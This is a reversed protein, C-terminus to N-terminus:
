KKAERWTDVKCGWMCMFDHTCFAGPNNRRSTTWCFKFYFGVCESGKGCDSNQNCKILDQKKGNVDYVTPYARHLESPSKGGSLYRRAGCDGGGQWCSGRDITPARCDLDIEARCKVVEGTCRFQLNHYTCKCATNAPAQQSIYCGGSEYKCDCQQQAYGGCDGNGQVCSGISTDPRLCYQSQPNRCTNLRGGCTYPAETMYCRCAKGPPPPRAITCGGSHYNCDCGCVAGIVASSTRSPIPSNPTALVKGRERAVKALKSPYNTIIADVGRQIYNAMSTEKDLTWIFVLGIVGANRNAVANQIASDFSKPLCATYGNGYVINKSELTTLTSITCGAENYENGEQDFSFYIQGGFRSRVAAKAAESIYSLVEM